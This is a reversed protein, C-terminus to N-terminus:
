RGSIRRHRQSLPGGRHVLSLIHAGHLAEVRVSCLIIVQGGRSSAEVELGLCEHGGGAKLRRWLLILLIGLRLLLLLAIMILLRLLLLLLLLLKHLLLVLM